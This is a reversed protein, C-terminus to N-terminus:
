GNRKRRKWKDLKDLGTVIGFVLLLLLVPVCRLVDFFDVVWIMSSEKTVGSEM